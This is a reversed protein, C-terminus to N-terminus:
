GPSRPPGNPTSCSSSGAVRDEAKLTDDHLLRRAHDWHAQADIAGTPGDWRVAPLSLTTLKHNAAWRNIHGAERRGTAHGSTLWTDLDPQKATALNLGRANLAQLLALAARVHQRVVVAQSHTTQAGGTRGRLRRV